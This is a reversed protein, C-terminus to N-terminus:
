EKRAIFQFSSEAAEIIHVMDSNTMAASLFATEFQSPPLYVGKELMKRHFRAFEATNSRKASSYDTVARNTFFLSFMSGMRNVQVPTEAREAAATLGAELQNGMRELREYVKPDSLVKLTAIGAAVALPNGSLTGAQYVPGSPAILDMLDARGGYAGIPLGGGLIKGLTTLDASVHYLAQAGGTGVRFGTIVEDFILLSHTRETLQRLAPLFDPKPPVCGMNGAIPEVIVAAISNGDARFLAEVTQVDNYPLTITDATIAAPVGASNPIGLSALGSGAKSLLHDSHGHYGGEFKVIKSRNTAARALRLASMVAETGSSVLRLKQITPMFRTVMEALEIEIETPAGFTTGNEIRESLAAVVESPSHGLILPGWSGCCDLYRNGDVDWLYAGEGREIFLPDGGVTKFARVPSNVGGPIVRLAREFLMKSKQTSLTM